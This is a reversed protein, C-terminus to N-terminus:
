YATSTVTGKMCMTSDRTIAIRTLENGGDLLEKETARIVYAQGAYIPATARYTIGTLSVATQHQDRWYDLMNILNLPGHVVINPHGEVGRTWPDNYHIMHANFTLASFRFLAVPSWRM